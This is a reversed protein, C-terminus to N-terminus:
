AKDKLCKPNVQDEALSKINKIAALKADRQQKNWYKPALMYGCNLLKQTDSYIIGCDQKKGAGVNPCQDGFFAYRYGFGGVGPGKGQSFYYKFGKVRASYQSLENGAGDIYALFLVAQGSHERNNMDKNLNIFSGPLLEKFSCMTGMGYAKLAYATGYSGTNVWVLDRFTRAQTTRWHKVPLYTFVSTDKTEASYMNLATVMIELQAAVCMTGPPRSAKLSNRGFPINHTFVGSKDYGRM